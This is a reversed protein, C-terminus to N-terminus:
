IFDGNEYQRKGIIVSALLFILITCIVFILDGYNFCNSLDILRKQPIINRIFGIVKNTDTFSILCGGLLSTIMAIISGAMSESERDKFITAIFMGFSSSLIGVLFLLFTLLSYSIDLNVNLIKLIAVSWITSPISLIIMSYLMQGLIYQFYSIQGSLVRTYTGNERDALFFDMVMTTAGMFLFMILFGIVKGQVTANENEGEYVEGKLSAELAKKIEEGRYSIVTAEAGNLNIEALYVGKILETKSPSEELFEVKIKENSVMSNEVIGKEEGKAGVVAIKGKIGDSGNFYVGLCIIIPMVVIVMALMGKEKTIRYLNNKMVLLINRM